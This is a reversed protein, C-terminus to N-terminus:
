QYFLYQVCIQLLIYFITSGEKCKKVIDMHNLYFKCSPFLIYILLYLLWCPPTGLAYAWSFCSATEVPSVTTLTSFITVPAPQTGTTVHTLRWKPHQLWYWEHDESFHRKLSTYICSLNTHWFTRAQSVNETTLSIPSFEELRWNRPSVPHFSSHCERCPILYARFRKYTLQALTLFSSKLLPKYLTRNKM